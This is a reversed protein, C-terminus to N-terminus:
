PRYRSVRGYCEIQFPEDTQWYDYGHRVDTKKPLASHGTLKEVKVLLIREDNTGLPYAIPYNQHLPEKFKETDEFPCNKDDKGHHIVIPPLHALDLESKM